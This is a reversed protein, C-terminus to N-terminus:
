WHVYVKDGVNVMDFLARMGSYDRTNICGHSNERYGVAAFNASYHIAQGGSFFMAFPMEQGYLSSVHWRNKWYVHFLGERTPLGRLVSGFRADMAIQTKGNVVFALQRTSKNVCIVRGYNCASPRAEAAPAVFLTTAILAASALGITGKRGRWRAM